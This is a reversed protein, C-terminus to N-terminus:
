YPRGQMAAPSLAVGAYGGGTISIGRKPRSDPGPYKYQLLQYSTAGPNEVWANKERKDLAVAYSGPKQTGFLKTMTKSGREFDGCGAEQDCVLLAGNKTTQIGAPYALSIGLDTPLGTGGTWELIGGSGSAKAYTVYLNGADDVADSFALAMTASTLTSTPSTSGNAYVEVNGPNGSACGESYGFFNTVYVTGTTDDVAVGTAPGGTDTLTKVPTSTGPAFELVSSLTTKCNGSVAVWLNRQSDVFLGQPNVIGTIQGCPTGNNHKQDYAYVSNNYSTVYVVSKGCASSNMRAHASSENSVRNFSPTGLPTFASCAALSLAISATATM